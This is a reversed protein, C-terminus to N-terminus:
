RQKLLEPVGHEFHQGYRVKAYVRYPPVRKLGRIMRFSRSGTIRAYRAAADEVPADWEPGFRARALLRYPLTGKVGQLLRWTRSNEIHSLARELSAAETEGREGGGRGVRGAKRQRSLMKERAAWLHDALEMTRVWEIGQMAMERALERPLRVRPERDRLREAREFLEVMRDGMARIPFRESIRRRANEGLRRRRHPHVILGTLIETYMRVQDEPSLGRPILIGAEPTVLEAQGGVDAGVVCLGAAMSEYVSLAIGEWQSPLFFIDSAGMLGPMDDTAVAGLMRVKSRLDHEDLYKELAPRDEGEGAVFAVFRLGRDRLNRITEAFVMPQKQACLRVAYLLAPTSDALDHRGRILDRAVRDPRWLETNCNTYCAEIRAPDAGKEVQWRKLHESSVINLDLQSQMGVGSRPHGGNKWHPEEMHNYDVYAPEPCVSRLYPILLYGTESNTNLVVDPRRSRILYTLLRPFDPPRAYHRLPWVDPTHKTFEPMWPHGDLTAAITVEWGAGSLEKVLDLNFKDAGGLRFWPVIMLLRRRSKSLPNEFPPDEPIDAFPPHQPRDAEPFQGAFLAPHKAALHARFGQRRQVCALNVWDDHQNPRRRYWDLYEPITDGWHGAAACRIWFDWDELGGRVSEDLGGVEEHVSTRVVTTATALNENLFDARCHFGKDWLYKEGAFGVTYGKVFAAKPNCELYWVCKELKTPEILDDGDLQLVYATRAARYGTNRTAALGHNVAHDLVRIRGDTRSLERYRELVRLSEPDTSADNVIIWEFRQLSQGLVCRATEHFVEGVNYFPTIITAVPPLHAPESGELQAYEFRPRRPSVPTNDYEPQRPDIM